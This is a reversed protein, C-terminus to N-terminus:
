PNGRRHVRLVCEPKLHADAHRDMQRRVGPNLVLDYTFNNGTNSEM